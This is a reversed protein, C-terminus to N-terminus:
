IKIMRFSTLENNTTSIKMIYVGKNITSINFSVENTDFHKSIIKQGMINYVEVLNITHTAKLNIKRYAPNPYFNFGEIINDSIGLSSDITTVDDLQYVEGQNGANDELFLYVDYATGATLSSIIESVDTNASNMLFNGDTIANTGNLIDDYTVTSSFNGPYIAYHITGTESGNVLLTFGTTTENIAQPYSTNLPMAYYDGGFVVYAM